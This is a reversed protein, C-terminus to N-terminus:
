RVSRVMALEHYFGEQEPVKRFEEVTLLNTTGAAM